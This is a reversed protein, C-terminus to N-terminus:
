IDPLNQVLDTEVTNALKEVLKQKDQFNQMNKMMM